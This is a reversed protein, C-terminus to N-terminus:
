QDYHNTVEKVVVVRQDATPVLILGWTSDIDAAYEGSRSGKLPHLRLARIRHLDDFTQVAYIQEIRMVYKRGVVPGWKRIAKESDEYNRQLQRNAFVIEM